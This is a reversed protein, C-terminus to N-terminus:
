RSEKLPSLIDLPYEEGNYANISHDCEAPAPKKGNTICEELSIM